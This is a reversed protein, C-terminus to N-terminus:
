AAYFFSDILKLVKAFEGSSDLWIISKVKKFWTLQRKAYRRTDRQILRVADELSLDGRIYQAIERYGITQMAKCDIPFGQKLLTEVEQILGDELMQWVRQDIRQYLNERPMSLGLTIVRFPCGTAAHEAQMESLRRGCLRYVELGRVIRVLDHPALREALVPDVERLRAYLTGTGGAQEEGLLQERLRPDGGPVEALGHLLAQIYLGTGGVVFPLKGASRIELLARRGLRCFDAATFNEDPEAVDILHHRVAALERSSPKATGIDMHRYVQRSDASVVEVALHQALRVAFATKGVATPGCVVLVPPRNDKGDFGM